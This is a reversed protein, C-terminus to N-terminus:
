EDKSEKKTPRTCDYHECKGDSMWWSFHGCAKVRSPGLKGKRLKLPKPPVDNDEIVAMPTSIVVGDAPTDLNDLLANLRDIKNNTKKSTM